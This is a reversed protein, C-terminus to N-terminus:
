QEYAQAASRVKYRSKGAMSVCQQRRVGKATDRIGAIDVSSGGTRACLSKKRGHESVYQWSRCEGSRGEGRGHECIGGGGCEKCFGRRGAISV